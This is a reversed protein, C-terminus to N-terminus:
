EPNNLRKLAKRLLSRLRYSLLFIVGACGVTKSFLSYSLIVCFYSIMFCNHLVTIDSFTKKMIKITISESSYLVMMLNIIFGNLHLLFASDSNQTNYFLGLMIILMIHVLSRYAYYPRKFKSDVVIEILKPIAFLLISCMFTIESSVESNLVLTPYFFKKHVLNPFGDLRYVTRIIHPYINSIVFMILFINLKSKYLRFRLKFCFDLANIYKFFNIVIIFKILFDLKLGLSSTFGLALFYTYIGHCYLSIYTDFMKKKCIIIESKENFLNVCIYLSAILSNILGLNDYLSQLIKNILFFKKDKFYEAIMCINQNKKDLFPDLTIIMLSNIVVLVTVFKRIKKINTTLFKPEFLRKNSNKNETNYCSKFYKM